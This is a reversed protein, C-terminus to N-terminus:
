AAADDLRGLVWPSEDDTRPSAFEVLKTLLVDIERQERLYFQAGSKKSRRVRVTFLPQSEDLRFVDADTVDDGIYFATDTGAASSTM